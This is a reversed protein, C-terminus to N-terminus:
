PLTYNKLWKWQEDAGYMPHNSGNPYQHQLDKVIRYLFINNADGSVSSFTATIVKNPDGSITYDSKLGLTKIISNVSGQIDAIQFVEKFNMPLPKKSNLEIINEDENGVQVLFPIKRKPVFVTDPKVSGANSCIAAFKDSMSVMCKSAMSGGNSFGVLYIRKPDVAYKTILEDIIISFFKEDDRPVEGPCYGFSGTANWKTTRTTGNTEIICYEWSSPFVTIINATDGVEKWGSINWFKEGNGSSGHLMIVVPLKQKSDYNLPLQVIYERNDGDVKTTIKTKRKLFDANESNNKSCAIINLLTAFILIYKQM